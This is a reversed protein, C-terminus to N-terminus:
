MHMTYRIGTYIKIVVGVVRKMGEGICPIRLFASLLANIILICGLNSM